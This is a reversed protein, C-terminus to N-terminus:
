QKWRFLAWATKILPPREGAPVLECRQLHLLLKLYLWRQNPGSLEKGCKCDLKHRIEISVNMKM